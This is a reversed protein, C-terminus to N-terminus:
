GTIVQGNKFTLTGEGHMKGHRFNGKYFKGDDWKFIGEGGMLGNVFTGEYVGFPLKLAGRGQKKNM